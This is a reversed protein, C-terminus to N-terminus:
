TCTRHERVEIEIFEPKGLAVYTEYSMHLQPGDETDIHQYWTNHQQNNELRMPIILSMM